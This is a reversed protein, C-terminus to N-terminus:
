QEPNTWQYYRSLVGDEAITEALQFGCKELVRLSAANEAFTFAGLRRIGFRCGVETMFLRVAQTAIGQGWCATDWLCYSLMAQPTGDPAMAYCWVDGVYRGDVLIIRGYSRADPLLTKRYDALAEAETTAKLPLFRRIDPRRSQRFFIRVTEPTRQDLTITM